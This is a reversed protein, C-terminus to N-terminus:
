LPFEEECIGVQPFAPLRLAFRGLGGGFAAMAAIKTWSSLIEKDFGM